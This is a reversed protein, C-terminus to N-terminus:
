GPVERGFVEGRQSVLFPDVVCGDIAEELAEGARVVLEVGLATDEGDGRRCEGVKFEIFPGLRADEVGVRWTEGYIVCVEDKKWRQDVIGTPNENGDGHSVVLEAVVVGM